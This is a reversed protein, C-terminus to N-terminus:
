TNNRNLDFTMSIKVLDGEVKVKIDTNTEFRIRALGLHTSENANLAADQIKKLYVSHPDSSTVEELQELLININEKASFNEVSLNLLNEDQIYEMSIKTGEASAYKVANELLESAATSIVSAWRNNALTISLFNQFFIRVTSIYTWRPGFIVEIFSNKPNKFLDMNSSRRKLFYLLIGSFAITIKM